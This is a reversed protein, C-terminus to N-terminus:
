GGTKGGERAAPEFTRAFELRATRLWSYVTNLNACLAQAIEPATMQELEAMVFVARRHEDLGRLFGHLRRRAEAQASLEFPGPQQTEFQDDGLVIPDGRRRQSRRYNSAIRLAIAFL